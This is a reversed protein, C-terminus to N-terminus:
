RNWAQIVRATLTGTGSNLLLRIATARFTLVKAISGTDGDLDEDTFTDVTMEFDGYPKDTFKDDRQQQLNEFTYELDFDVTGEVTIAISVEMSEPYTNLPFWASYVVAAFGVTIEGATDDDVTISTVTKFQKTTQVTGTAPGTVEESIVNDFRDTGVVTFTRGSDAGDSTIDIIIPQPPQGAITLSQEGGAAPTVATVIGDDDATVGPLIITNVTM